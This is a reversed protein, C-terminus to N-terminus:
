FLVKPFPDWASGGQGLCGQGLDGEGLCGQGLVEEGLVLCSSLDEYFSYSVGYSACFADRPLDDWM